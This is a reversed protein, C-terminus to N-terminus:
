RTKGVDSRTSKGVTRRSEFRSTCKIAGINPHNLTALLKAERRFRDLREQDESVAAPLVKLVVQRGLKTDEALFVEGEEPEPMNQEQRDRDSDDGGADM